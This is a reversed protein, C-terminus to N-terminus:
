GGAFVPLLIVTDGDKIKVPTMDEFELINGNLVIMVATSLEGIDPDFIGKRFNPYRYAFRRLLDGLTSDQGVEEDITIWGTGERDLVGALSPSAEFHVMGM